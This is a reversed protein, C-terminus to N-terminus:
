TKKLSIKAFGPPSFLNHWDVRLEMSTAENMWDEHKLKLVVNGNRAVISGNEGTRNVGNSDIITWSSTPLTNHPQIASLEVPKNRTPWQNPSILVLKGNGPSSLIGKGLQSKETESMVDERSHSVGNTIASIMWIRLMTRPREGARNYSQILAPDTWDVWKLPNLVKEFEAVSIPTTAGNTRATRNVTPYIKL